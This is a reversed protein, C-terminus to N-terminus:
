HRPLTSSTKISSTSRPTPNALMTVALSIPAGLGGGSFTVNQVGTGVSLSYGGAGATSTSSGGVAITMAGRGEGVSYFNDHDLDAYSVGTLFQHSGSTGFDDTLMTANLGQFNGTVQGVGVEQFAANLMNLRHGRGAVTSDVFFDQHLMLTMATTVAGNTSRLAINEGGATLPSYGANAIRQFPTVGKASVRM